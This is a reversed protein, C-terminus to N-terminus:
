SGDAETGIRPLSPNIRSVIEYHITGAWGALEEARLTESESSGILVVHDGRRAEPVDTVDIMMMNMCIRGVVRARRGHLLVHAKESAVRPYGDYYGVPLVAIRTRRTARWSRGYSVFEGAPVEKVQAILTKWSLVPRLAFGSLSRERASVLTERSPWLGYLGIGIRALGLHTEPFLIAAASCACHQPAPVGGPWDVQACIERFRSLQTEAFSHDTTDEIDAFHTSVGAIELSDQAGIGEVLAALEGPRVGQRNTGTEVKLHLAAKRGLVRAAKALEQMTHEDYITAELGHEVAFGLDGVPIMGLVLIRPEPGITKRLEIGESLSVVAFANSGAALLEPAVIAMGHGYANSKVVAVLRTTKALRGRFAALNNRLASRDTEIWSVCGPPLPHRPLSLSM